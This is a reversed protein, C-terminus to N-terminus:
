KGHRFFLLLLCRITICCISYWLRGDSGWGSRGERGLLLIEQALVALEVRAALLGDKIGDVTLVAVGCGLGFVLCHLGCRDGGRAVFFVAGGAAM